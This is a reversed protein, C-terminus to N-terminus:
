VNNLVEMLKNGYPIHIVKDFIGGLAKLKKEKCDGCEIAINQSDLTGVVDVIYWKYNVSVPKEVEIDYGKSDLYRACDSKMKYHRKSEVSVGFMGGDRFIILMKEAWEKNGWRKAVQTSIKERVDLRKACNNDGKMWWADRGKMKDSILQRVELRKSPNVDSRKLTESIKKLVDPNKSPNNTKLYCDRSCYKSGTIRYPSYRYPFLRGCGECVLEPKKNWPTRGKNAISIKQAIEEGRIEWLLNHAKRVNELIRPTREYVGSPM